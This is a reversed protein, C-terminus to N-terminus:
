DFGMGFKELLEFDGFFEFVVEKGEFVLVFFGDRQQVL